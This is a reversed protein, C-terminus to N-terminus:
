KDPNLESLQPCLERARRSQYALFEVPFYKDQAQLWRRCARCLNCEQDFFVALGGVAPAPPNTTPDQDTKM